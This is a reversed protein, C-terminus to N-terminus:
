HHIYVRKGSCAPCDASIFYEIHEHLSAVISDSESEEEIARRFARHHGFHKWYDRSNVKLGRALYIRRM